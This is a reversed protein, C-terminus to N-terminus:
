IGNTAVFIGGFDTLNKNPKLQEHTIWLDLLDRNQETSLNLNKLLIDIEEETYFSVYKEHYESFSRTWTKATTNKEENLEPKRYDAIIKVKRSITSLEKILEEIEPKTLYSLVGEIIIVTYLNKDFISDNLTNRISRQKLDIEYFYLNPTENFHKHLIKKKRQQTAPFDLEIIKHSKIQDKLLLYSTDYGAGIILFQTNEIQLDQIMIDYIFRHRCLSLLYGVSNMGKCWFSPNFFSNIRNLIYIFRTKNGIFLRSYPDNFVLKGFKNKTALTRIMASLEATKSAKGQKM